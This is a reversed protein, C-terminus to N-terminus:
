ALKAKRWGEQKLRNIRKIAWANIEQLYGKPDDNKRAIINKREEAFDDTEGPYMERWTAYGNDFIFAANVQDAKMSLKTMCYMRALTMDYEIIWSNDYIMTEKNITTRQSCSPCYVKEVVEKGMINDRLHLQTERNGCECQKKVEVCM